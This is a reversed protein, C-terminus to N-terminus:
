IHDSNPRVYYMTLSAQSAATKLSLIVIKYNNILELQTYMYMYWSKIDLTSHTTPVYM